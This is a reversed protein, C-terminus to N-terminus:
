DFLWDGGRCIAWAAVIWAATGLLRRLLSSVDLLGYGIAILFALVGAALYRAVRQLTTRKRRKRWEEVQALLRKKALLVDREGFAGLDFGHEGRYEWYSTRDSGM